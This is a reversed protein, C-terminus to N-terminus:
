LGVSDSRLVRVDSVVNDCKGESNWLMTDKIRKELDNLFIIHYACYFVALYDLLLETDALVCVKYKHM